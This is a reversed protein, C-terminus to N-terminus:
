ALKLEGGEAYLRRSASLLSSETFVAEEDMTLAADEM